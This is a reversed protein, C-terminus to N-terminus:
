QFHHTSECYLSSFQLGPRAVGLLDANARPGWPAFSRLLCHQFTASIIIQFALPCLNLCERSGTKTFNSQPLSCCRHSLNLFSLNQLTKIRKRSMLPPFAAPSAVLRAFHVRGRGSTHPPQQPWTPPLGWTEKPIIPCATGQSNLPGEAM